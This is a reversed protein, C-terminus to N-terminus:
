LHNIGRGGHECTRPGHDLGGVRAARRLPPPSTARPPRSPMGPPSGAGRFAYLRARPAHFWDDLAPQGRPARANGAVGAVGASAAALAAVVSM